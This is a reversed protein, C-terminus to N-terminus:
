LLMEWIDIKFEEKIARIYRVGNIYNLILDTFYDQASKSSMELLEKKRKIYRKRESALSADNIKLLAMVNNAEKDEPNCIYDGDLYIIREEFDNATPHLIPQFNDWKNSKEKNWQHKVLFWNQYNDEDTDKLYPNFHEIEKADTRGMFEDTYACFSKQEILLIDTIKKNNSSNGSIYKANQTIIDSQSFKIARRM